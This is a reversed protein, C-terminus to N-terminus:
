EADLFDDDPLVAMHAAALLKQSRMTHFNHHQIILIALVDQIFEDLFPWLLPFESSRTMHPPSSSRHTLPPTPPLHLTFHGPLVIANPPAAIRDTALSFSVNSSVVNSFDENVEEEAPSAGDLLKAFRRSIEKRERPDVGVCSVKGVRQSWSWDAAM